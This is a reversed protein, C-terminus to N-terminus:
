REESMERGSREPAVSLARGGLRGSDAPSGHRAEEGDLRGLVWRELRRALRTHPLKGPSLPVVLFARIGARKAGLVDTFLQDGLMAAREAPVGLLKLGRRFAHPFPKGALHLAPVGAAEAVARVREREGNSLIVVRVGATLLGRLWGYVADPVRDARAALLTDDLDLLLGDVGREALWAPTVDHVSAVREDPRLLTPPLRRSRAGGVASM